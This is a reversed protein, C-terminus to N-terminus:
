NIVRDYINLKIFDKIKKSFDRTHLLNFLKQRISDILFCILYIIIALVIISPIILLPELNAIKLFKNSIFMSRMFRNDSIIYVGFSVASLKQIINKWHKINLKSFFIFLSVASVVIFISNYEILITNTKLSKYMIISLIIEVIFVLISSIIYTLLYFKNDKKFDDQYLRIYAGIIYMVALWLFSYGKGVNFLDYGLFRAFIEIICFSFLCVFIIKKHQKKSLNNILVNFFPIFLFLCFYATFYWYQNSIVPIFSNFLNKINVINNQPLFYFIGAIILSYFVVNFWLEIIREFKYKCKIHSYGTTLAFMNVSCMCFIQLLWVILNNLKFPSTAGLIGGHGILHLIVIMTMSVIRLLEVGINRNNKAENVEKISLDKVELM